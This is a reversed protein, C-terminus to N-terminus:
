TFNLPSFVQYWGTGLSMQSSFETDNVFVSYPPTGGSMNVALSGGSYDCSSQNAPM